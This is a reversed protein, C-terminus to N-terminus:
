YLRRLDDFFQDFERLFHPLGICAALLESQGLVLQGEVVCQLGIVACDLHESVLRESVDGALEDLGDPAVDGDVPREALIYTCVEAPQNPADEALVAVWRVLLLFRRLRHRSCASTSDASHTLHLGACPLSITLTRERRSMNSGFNTETSSVRISSDLLM